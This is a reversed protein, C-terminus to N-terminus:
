TTSSSRRRSTSASCRTPRQHRRVSHIVADVEADALHQGQLLALSARQLAMEADWQGKIFRGIEILAYTGDAPDYHTKFDNLIDPFTVSAQKPLAGNAALILAAQKSPGKDLIGQVTKAEADLLKKLKQEEGELRHRTALDASHIAAHYNHERQEPTLTAGHMSFQDADVNFNAAKLTEYEQNLKDVGDDYEKIAKSWMTLAGGAITTCQAINNSSSLM